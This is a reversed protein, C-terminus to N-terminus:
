FLKCNKLIKEIKTKDGYIVPSDYGRRPFAGYEPRIKYGNEEIFQEVHDGLRTPKGSCCDIVGNVEDQAVIAVIQKALDYVSIYDYQENGDTFPFTTKGEAEWQIIKSLISQNHIDDGYVTFPRLWQLCFKDECIIELADKLMLKSLTYYNNPKITVSADVMGNVAGYERFSGTVALQKTGHEILNKLFLFHKHFDTIHSLANHEFGNRWALHICIDPKGLKEYIKEDEADCLLDFHVFEVEKTLNGNERSAAVVSFMETYKLLENVVHVGIYGNAGTVVVRKM